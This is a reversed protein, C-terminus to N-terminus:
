KKIWDTKKMKKIEVKEEEKKKEQPVEIQLMSKCHESIQADQEATVGEHWGVIRNLINNNYIQTGTITENVTPPGNFNNIVSSITINDSSFIIENLSQDIIVEAGWFYGMLGSSITELNIAPDFMSAGYRRLYSFDILNMSMRTVRKNQKEIEKFKDCIWNLLKQREAEYKDDKIWRKIKQLVVNFWSVKIIKELM